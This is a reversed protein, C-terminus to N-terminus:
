KTRRETRKAIVREPLGCARVVGRAGTGLSVILLAVALALLPLRYQHLRLNLSLITTGSVGIISLVGPLLLPACCSLAGVSFLAALASIGRGRASAVARRWAYWHLPISLGLLLATAVVAVVTFLDANIFLGGTPFVTIINASWVLFSMVALTIMLAAVVYPIRRYVECLAPFVM